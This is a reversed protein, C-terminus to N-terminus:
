AARAPQDLRPLHLFSDASSLLNESTRQQV